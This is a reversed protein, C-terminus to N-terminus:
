GLLERMKAATQEMQEQSIDKKPWHRLGDGESRPMVHVHTHMVVQGAAAGTNIGINFGHAGTVGLAVAAIRKAASFIRTIVDDPTEAINLFHAKPVVLTHGLHVPHIDLFAIVSDDEYVKSCPIEGVIIKCFICDSM